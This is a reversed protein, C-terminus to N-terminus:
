LPLTHLGNRLASYESHSSDIMGHRLLFDIVVLNCNPKFEDTERVVRAVEDLSWLYFEGVEGDTCVPAFTSPLTLDYCFITDSRLGRETERRYTIYGVAVAQAALEEGMGAEEACEKALNEELSIGHPKGGAVLQDLMDPFAKRDGARRGLWMSVGDETPVIGNLHQGFSRIGFASVAARDLLFAPADGWRNVVPYREGMLHDLVGDAVLLELVEAVARSRAVDDALASHLAVGGNSPVFVAPYRRLEEAFAARMFGFQAGDIMFPVFSSPNWHNSAQIHRLYGPQQRHIVV